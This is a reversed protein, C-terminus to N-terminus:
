TASTAQVAVPTVQSAVPLRILFFAGGEPKNYCTIQGNHDQIVGYTASLGLGTGKGVPKTTYFPDFVKGPERMGPGSDSFGILVENGEKHATLILEGGGVENLADVANDIIQVFAQFLQNPNGSVRPLDSDIKTQLQIKTGPRLAEMQAARQLLAGLDVQSKEAPAQRAFSLLDSVLDRTRLAQHEIKKVMGAQEATLSRHTSLLEAYGLIATLPNNIEHAAGAVLQGLSALKEKQVIQTQLRQLTDFSRHTEDLLRVLQRDLLYQKLFVFAGLVLMAGLAALLRFRKLRPPSPDFVLAWLGMLPLSLIALMALRPALALLRSGSETRAEPQPKLRLALIGTWIFWCLAAIYPIDYIGGSYYQTKQIAANMLVSGGTYISGAVFFNWYIRKWGPPSSMAVAGLGGLWIVGEILYLVDYNGSYVPRNLVVYEDPFVVFTYLFVWWLLLMIFNITSLHLKEEKDPRHPRLAVAAMFPVVHLFLIVDGAFPDPLERRLIVEYKAWLGQNILWLCFGSAMLLWFIRVSGRSIRANMLVLVTAATMLLMPVLNGWVKLGYSPRAALSVVVQALTLGAAFVLWWNRRVDM